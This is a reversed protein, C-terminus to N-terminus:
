QALHNISLYLTKEETGALPSSNTEAIWHVWNRTAFKWSSKTCAYIVDRQTKLIPYAVSCLISDLRYQLLGSMVANSLRACYMKTTSSKNDMPLLYSASRCRSFQCIIHVLQPFSFAWWGPELTLCILTITSTSPFLVSSPEQLSRPLVCLWFQASLWETVTHVHVSTTM